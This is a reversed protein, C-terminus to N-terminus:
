PFGLQATQWTLLLCNIAFTMCICSSFYEPFNVYLDNGSTTINYDNYTFVARQQQEQSFPGGGDSFGFYFPITFLYLKIATDEQSIDRM